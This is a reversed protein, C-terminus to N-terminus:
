DHIVEMLDTVNVVWHEPIWFGTYIDSQCMKPRIEEPVRELNVLVWGDERQQISTVTYTKVHDKDLGLKVQSGVHSVNGSKEAVSFIEKM